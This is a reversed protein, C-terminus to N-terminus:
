LENLARGTRLRPSRASTGPQHRPYHSDKEKSLQPWDLNLSDRVSNASRRGLSERIQEVLFRDAWFNPGSSAWCRLRRGFYRVCVESAPMRLRPEFPDVAQCNIADAQAAANGASHLGQGEEPLLGCDVKETTVMVRLTASTETRATAAPTPRTHAAYIESM